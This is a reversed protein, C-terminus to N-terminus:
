QHRKLVVERKDLVYTLLDNARQWHRVNMQYVKGRLINYIVVHENHITPETLTCAHCLLGQVIWSLDIDDKSSIKFLVITDELQVDIFARVDNSQMKKYCAVVEKKEGSILQVCKGVMTRIFAENDKFLSTGDVNTFLLRKRQDQLVRECKSLIWLDNIICEFSEKLTQTRKISDKVQLIFTNPIGDGTSIPVDSPKLGYRKAVARILDVIEQISKDPSSWALNDMVIIDNSSTLRRYKEFEQPTLSLTAVLKQAHILFHNKKASRCIEYVLITRLFTTFDAHIGEKNVQTGYDFADHLSVINGTLDPLINNQKLAVFDEGDLLEVLKDITKDIKCTDFDSTGNIYQPRVNVFKYFSQHINAIFRSVYPPNGSYSIHLEKRPRTIGVYFLRRDEQISKENKLRPIIADSVNIMFVYDWELGKAKHITCLTVFGKKINNRVDTKGELLNNKCGEKTLLEEVAFLSQNIPSLVVIEDEMVGKELLVKISEAVHSAQLAQSAFYRVIPLASTLQTNHCVMKKPIQNTQQSMCENAFNVIPQSSRFNKTLFMLEASPFHTKFNLMYSVNSGRFSYINQADDGVACLTVGNKVFENIIDFQVKNIDQFEDVFIYKYCKMLHPNKQLLALFEHGYEGVHKITRDRRKEHSVLFFKSIGDITGVKVNTKYGMIDSLKSKMDNAADWTFTTLMIEAENVDNEILFKIRSLITTTKGSGAGAVILMHDSSDAYIIAQQEDTLRIEKNKFFFVSKDAPFMRVYCKHCYMTDALANHANVMNDNYLHFYLECLKPYKKVNMFEKGKLMTCIQHKSQLINLEDHLGYRFCESSIVNIDFAINHAVIGSCKVAAQGLQKLALVIPVGHTEAEEQSIGHIKYSEESIIFNDPKIIYYGQEIIKDHQCVLWCISVVRSTDYNRLQQYNPFRWRNGDDFTPLGSCETDIFVNM